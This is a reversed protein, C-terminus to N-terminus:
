CQPGSLEEDQTSKGTNHHGGRGRGRARGRYFGRGRGSGRFSDVPSTASPVSSQPVFAPAPRQMEPPDFLYDAEAATQFEEFGTADQALHFTTSSHRRLPTEPTAPPSLPATISTQAHLRADAEM